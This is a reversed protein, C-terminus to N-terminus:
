GEYSIDGSLSSEISEEAIYDLPDVSVESAYVEFHLHADDACEVLATEGVYGLAQGRVLSAGVTTGEALEPALNRYVTSLGGKHQVTVSVGLLPDSEIASVVGDAAATVEAGLSSLIDIGAHVRYEDLTPSYVPLSLDHGRSIAGALPASLEPPTPEADADSSPPLTTDPSPELTVEPNKGGTVSAAIGVILVGLCLLVALTIWLIRNAEARKAKPQTNEMMINGKRIGGTATNSNKVASAFKYLAGFFIRDRMEQM